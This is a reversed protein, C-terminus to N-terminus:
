CTKVDAKIESKGRFARGSERAPGEQLLPSLRPPVLGGGVGVLSPSDCMGCGSVVRHSGTAYTTRTESRSHAMVGNQMYTVSRTLYARGITSDSVSVAMEFISIDSIM